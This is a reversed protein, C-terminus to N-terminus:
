TMTKRHTRFSLAAMRLSFRGDLLTSSLFIRGDRKIQDVIQQNIRNAEELSAGQPAWRFTAVSLDPPPGAEFGLAQIEQHFYRALLLKEELAARFPKTGLLILPLWMRLARFPKSLEPSVDAPSIEGPERLADQLYMYDGSYGHAAALPKVDRVVVIGSGWSLFLSKHPDLVVSDSREIGKMVSRGHETLLFFGGYAADVHFWCREREAITAIADLPDVAGTDTTDAAAAILWPRLGQARDAAIAAELAEPRMRFRDDIPIHRVQAEGMGAIRLAKELCHHAQATLYVVASAYDAGKLGHADRATVIATLSAISGGSAINGGATAPYGVLDAVWRILLNEMRVPGPGTFFLGAYKNSVAALYDGLASHYIGGGPIYALHGASAPNGGPRVVDQEFSEIVTEIPIGHESILNRLLGIGKDATEEYAKLTDIKELFRESSGVVADRLRQRDAAGPELPSAARELQRIRDLLAAREPDAM